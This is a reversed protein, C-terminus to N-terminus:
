VEELRVVEFGVFVVVFKKLNPRSSLRNDEIYEKVQQAGAKFEKQIKADTIGDKKLHKLEIVYEYESFSQPSKFMALDVFGQKAPLEDYTIFQETSSMIMMYVLKIYKEDFQRHNRTSLHQLFDSVLQTIKDIKGVEAMEDIAQYQTRLKFQYDAQKQELDSLYQLFISEIIKNPIKFKTQTGPKEITLLGINFMLTIFDDENYRKDLSIIPSLKGATRKTTVIERVIEYNQEPNKLEVLTKITSGSQNLNIDILTKPQKKKGLYERLYYMILTSNFVKESSDESFLYGNYNAKWIASVEAQESESLTIATKGDITFTEDLLRKVEVDNFGMLDAYDENTTIKSVINFGSTMSDLSVSM